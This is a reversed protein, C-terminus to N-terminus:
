AQPTVRIALDSETVSFTATSTDTTDRGVKIVMLRGAACGTTTIATQTFTFAQNATGPSTVTITQAANFTPNLIDSSAAICVTAVTLKVSQSTANVFAWATFDINGTWGTPLMFQFTATENAADDYDLSGFQYSTGHCNAAPANAAPLNWAPGATAGSCGASPVALNRVFAPHNFEPGFLMISRTGAAATVLVRGVVQQGPPYTAGLDTCDGAVSASIGVYDDATTAGDFVCQYTGQIAIESSGTTGCASGGTSTNGTCIGVAGSTDGASTIVVTGAGTLKALKNLTTGTSAANPFLNTLETGNLTAHNLKINNTTSNNVTINQVTGGNSLSGAIFYNTGDSVIRVGQGTLLVLTSGGNITSTTPTLTLTGAGTNQLDAFWGAPFNGGSGAQAITDAIPSSNSQSILKGCDGNQIAYSTGTQSNITEIGTLTGSSTIPGGSIGCTTSISINTTSSLNGTVICKGSQVNTFTVTVTNADTIALTNWGIDVPPTDNTFCETIVATTNLNHTLAVSTVSTFTQSYNATSSPVVGGDKILKGTTGDFVALHNATVSAPGVVATPASIVGTTTIPSPTVVVPATATLSTVTGTTTGGATIQAMHGNQCTYVKGDPTKENMRTNACTQGTPDTTTPIIQVPNQAWLAGCLITLLILLKM